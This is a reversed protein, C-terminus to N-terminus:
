VIGVKHFVWYWGGLSTVAAAAAPIAMVALLKHRGILSGGGSKHKGDQTAVKAPDVHAELLRLNKQNANYASRTFSGLLPVAGVVSGALLNVAMRSLKFVPVNHRAATVIIGAGLAIQVVIGAKRLGGGAIKGVSGSALKGLLNGSKASAFPVTVNLTDLAWTSGMLKELLQVDSNSNDTSSLSAAKHTGPAAHQKKELEGVSTSKHATAKHASRQQLVRSGLTGQWPQRHLQVCQQLGKTFASAALLPQHLSAAPSAPAGRATSFLASTTPAAARHLLRTASGRLM